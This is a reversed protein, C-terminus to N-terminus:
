EYMQPYLRREMQNEWHEDGEDPYDDPPDYDPPDYDDPGGEPVDEDANFQRPNLVM